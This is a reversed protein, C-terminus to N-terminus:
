SLISWKHRHLTVCMPYNRSIQFHIQLFSNINLYLIVQCIKYEIYSIVRIRLLHKLPTEWPYTLKGGAIEGGDM